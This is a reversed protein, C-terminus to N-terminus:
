KIEQQRMGSILPRSWSLLVNKRTLSCPRWCQLTQIFLCQINELMSTYKSDKNQYWFCGITFICVTYFHTSFHLLRGKVWHVCVCVFTDNKVLVISHVKNLDTWIFCILVFLYRRDGAHYDKTPVEEIILHTTELNKKERWVELFIRSCKKQISTQNNEWSLNRSIANHNFPKWIKFIICKKFQVNHSSQLFIVHYLIWFVSFSICYFILRRGM